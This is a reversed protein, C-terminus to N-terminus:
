QPFRLQNSRRRTSLHKLEGPERGYELCPYCPMVGAPNGWESMWPDIGAQPEGHSKAAQQTRRRSKAGLCGGYARIVKVETERSAEKCRECPRKWRRRKEEHTEEICNDLFAQSFFILKTSVLLISSRVEQKCPLREGLQAIGGYYTPPGLHVRVM